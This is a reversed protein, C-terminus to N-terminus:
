EERLNLGVNSARGQTTSQMSQVVGPPANLNLNIDTTSSTSGGIPVGVTAPTGIGFLDEVFSRTADIAAGGFFENGFAKTETSFKSFDLTAIAASIEGIAKGVGVLITLVTGFGKAISVSAKVLVGLSDAFALVQSPDVQDLYNGFAAAQKTLVPELRLFTRIVTDKLIIGLKRFKASFTNLRIDSQEQAVNTGALSASYETLLKVNNLISLGVKGHEDGFIKAELVARETSSTASDLERAVSRFVGELGLKKFDRGSRRLRGFIASLATGAQSGKIGGKAVTQIAANLQEFSLGAARANPGALLLAAGTDAIESSGLKAGAALVNVFRSAQDAGEGFINLAQGTINAADALEIGAANKLLLVAETTATLADINKLLEPKASGILKFATAVEDQSVVFTKAMSLIKDKLSDLDKGTSGTIASLDALADQFGAGVGFFGKISFFGLAAAAMGRFGSVFGGSMGKFSRGSKNMDRDLKKFSTSLKQNNTKIKKSVGSFSDKALFRYLVNFSRSM